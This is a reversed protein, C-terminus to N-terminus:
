ASRRIEYLSCSPKHWPGEMSDASPPYPEGCEDCEDAVVHEDDDHEERICRSVPVREGVEPMHPISIASCRAM